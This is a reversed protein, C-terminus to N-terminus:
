VADPHRAQGASTCKPFSASTPAEYSDHISDLICLDVIRKSRLIITLLPSYKSRTWASANTVSLAWELKDIDPHHRIPTRHGAGCQLPQCHIDSHVGRFRGPEERM